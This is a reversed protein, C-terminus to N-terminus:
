CSVPSTKPPCTLHVLSEAMLALESKALHGVASTTPGAFYDSVFKDMNESFERILRLGYSELDHKITLKEDDSYKDLDQVVKSAFDMCLGTLFEEEVELYDPNVGNMFTHVMEDLAFPIVAARVKFGDCCGGQNRQYKLIEKVSGNSEYSIIGEILFSEVTPLFEKQGFGAFVIGSGVNPIFARSFAHDLIRRIKRKIANNISFDSLISTIVRDMNHRYKKLVSSGIKYSFIPEQQRYFKYQNEIVTEVSDTVLNEDLERGEEDAKYIRYKIEEKMGVLLTEVFNSIYGEDAGEPFQINAYSLYDLFDKAYEVLTDFTKEQLIQSRYTKIITEWPLYMFHANGYIMIGVPSKHSLEYLKNATTSVKQEPGSQLTVASDAALAIAESNMVIIEATM